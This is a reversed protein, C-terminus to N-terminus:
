NQDDLQDTLYVAIMRDVPNALEIQIQNLLHDRLSVGSSLINEIGINPNEFGLTGGTGWDTAADPMGPAESVPTPDREWINDYEEMDLSNVSESSIEEANMQELGTLSGNEEPDDAPSLDGAELEDDHSEEAGHEEALRDDGGTEDEARELMPNESLEDEVYERLEVSSLQLLKIAQQLQPTMVLAQGQRLELRPTLAM